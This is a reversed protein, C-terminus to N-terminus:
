NAVVGAVVVPLGTSAALESTIWIVCYRGVPSPQSLGAYGLATRGKKGFPQGPSPRMCTWITSPSSRTGSRGQRDLGELTGM